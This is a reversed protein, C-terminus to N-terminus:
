ESSESAVLRALEPRTYREAPDIDPADGPHSYEGSDFAHYVAWTYAEPERAPPDFAFAVLSNIAADAANFDLTGALFRHAVRRSFNDCFTSLSLGSLVLAREFESRPITLSDCAEILPDLSAKDM